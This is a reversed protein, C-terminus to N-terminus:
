GSAAKLLKPDLVSPVSGCAEPYSGTKSVRISQYIPHLLGWRLLSSPRGEIGYAWGIGDLVSCSAVGLVVTAISCFIMVRIYRMVSMITM